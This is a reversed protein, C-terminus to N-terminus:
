LQLSTPVAPGKPPIFGFAILLAHENLTPVHDVIYIIYIYIDIYVTLKPYNQSM